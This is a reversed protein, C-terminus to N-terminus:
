KQTQLSRLIQEVKEWPDAFEALSSSSLTTLNPLIAHLQCAVADPDFIPSVGVEIWTINENPTTKSFPECKIDISCAHFSLTIERLRRCHQVLHVLGIFTLDPTENGTRLRFEELQPWSQAMIKLEADDITSNGSFFLGLQTLRSFSLLPAVAAFDLVRSHDIDANRPFFIRITIKELTPSFSESFPAMLNQFVMSEFPLSQIQPPRGYCGEEIVSYGVCLGVSRCSLFRVNRLPRTFLHPVPATIHIENLQFPFIVPSYPERDDFDHIVFRLSKLSPLSTLHRLSRTNLVGTNLDCLERWGCVSECIAHSDGDYAGSFERIFPCQTGLSALLASKALSPAWSVRLNSALLVSSITPVFLTRLLPFFCERQDYWQLSRLRPLLPAAPASILAEV